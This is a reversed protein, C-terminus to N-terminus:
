LFNKDMMRHRLSVSKKIKRPRVKVEKYTIKMLIQGDSKLKDLIEIEGIRVKHLGGGRGVHVDPRAVWM